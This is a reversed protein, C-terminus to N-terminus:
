SSQHRNVAVEALEAFRASRAGVPAAVGAFLAIRPDAAGDPLALRQRHARAAPTMAQRAAAASLLAGLNPTSVDFARRSRLAFSMDM